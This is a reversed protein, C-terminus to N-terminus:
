MRVPLVLRIDLREIISRCVPLAFPPKRNTLNSLLEARQWRTTLLSTTPQTVAAHNLCHHSVGRDHSSSESAPECNKTSATLATGFCGVESERFIGGLLGAGGALLREFPSPDGAALISCAVTAPAESVGAAVGVGDAEEVGAGM